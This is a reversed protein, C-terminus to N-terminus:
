SEDGGETVEGAKPAVPVRGYEAIFAHLEAPVPAYRNGDAREKEAQPWGFTTVLHDHNSRVQSRLLKGAKTIDSVGKREAFAAITAKFPFSAPADTM